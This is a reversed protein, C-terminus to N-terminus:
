GSVRWPYATHTHMHTHTHTHAHTHTCTRTHMHTRARIRTHTHARARARMHTNTQTHTQRETQTDLFCVPFLCLRTCLPALFLVEFFTSARAFLGRKTRNLQIRVKDKYSKDGVTGGGTGSYSVGATDRDGEARQNSGVDGAGNEGEGTLHSKILTFLSRILTLLSRILRKSGVYGAGDEGEGRRV